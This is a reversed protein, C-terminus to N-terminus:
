FWSDADWNEGENPKSYDTSRIAFFDTHTMGGTLHYFWDLKEAKKRNYEIHKDGGPIANYGLEGLKENTRQKIFEKVFTHNNSTQANINFNEFYNSYNSYMIKYRNIERRMFIKYSNFAFTTKINKHVNILDIIKNKLLITNKEKNENNIYNNYMINISIKLFLLKIFDCM